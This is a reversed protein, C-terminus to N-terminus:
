PTSKLEDRWQPSVVDVMQGVVAKRIEIKLMAAAAQVSGNRATLSAADIKGDRHAELDKLIQQAHKMYLNM